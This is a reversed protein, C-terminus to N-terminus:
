GEKSNSMEVIFPFAIREIHLIKKFLRRGYERDDYVEVLRIMASTPVRAVSMGVPRDHISLVGWLEWALMNNDLLDPKPCEDCLPQENFQKHM